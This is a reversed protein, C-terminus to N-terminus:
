LGHALQDGANVQVIIVAVFVFMKCRIGAVNIPRGGGLQKLGRRLRFFQRDRQLQFFFRAWIRGTHLLQQFGRAGGHVLEFFLPALNGALTFMFRAAMPKRMCEPQPASTATDWFAPSTSTSSRRRMTTM